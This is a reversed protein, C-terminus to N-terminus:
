ANPLLFAISLPAPGFACDFGTLDFKPESLCFIRASPPQDTLPADAIMALKRCADPLPGSLGIAHRKSLLFEGLAGAAAHDASTEPQRCDGLITAEGRGPPPRQM